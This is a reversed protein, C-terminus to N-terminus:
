AACMLVDSQFSGGDVDHPGLFILSMHLASFKASM